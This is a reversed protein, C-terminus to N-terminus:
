VRATVDEEVLCVELFEDLKKVVKIWPARRHRNYLRDILYSEGDLDNATEVKDEISHTIDLVEAVSPKDDTIIVNPQLVGACKLWDGTLAQINPISQPRSSIFYVSYMNCLENIKDLEDDTALCDLRDVWWYDTEVIFKWIEEVQQSDINCFTETSWTDQEEMSVPKSLIGLDVGVESFAQVFNALVGDVDFMIRKM